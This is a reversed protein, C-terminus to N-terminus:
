EAIGRGAVSDPEGLPHFLHRRGTPDPNGLRGRVEDFVRRSQAFRLEHLDLAHGFGDGGTDQQRGVPAATQEPASVHAEDTPTPLHGCEIGDDVARDPTAAAHDVHHSRRADALAPHGSLGRRKRSGASDFDEPGEAFGVGTVNREIRRRPQQSRGEADLAEFGSGRTCLNSSHRRGAGVGLVQQQQGVHETNGIGIHWQRL